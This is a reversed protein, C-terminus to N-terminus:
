EEVYLIQYEEILHNVIDSKYKFKQGCQACEYYPPIM